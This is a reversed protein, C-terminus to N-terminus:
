DSLFRFNCLVNDSVKWAEEALLYASSHQPVELRPLMSHQLHTVSRAQPINVGKGKASEIFTQYSNDSTKFSGIFAEALFSDLPDMKSDIIRNAESAKKAFFEHDFLLPQIADPIKDWSSKKEEEQDDRNRRAKSREGGMATFLAGDNSKAVKKHGSHKNNLVRPATKKVNNSKANTGEVKFTPPAASTSTGVAPAQKNDQLLNPRTSTKLKLKDQSFDSRIGKSKMQVPNSKNILRFIQMLLKYLLRTM